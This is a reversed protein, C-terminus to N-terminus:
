QEILPEVWKQLLIPGYTEKISSFYQWGFTSLQINEPTSFQRRISAVSRGTACWQYSPDKEVVVISGTFGERRLFCATASGVAAGGVIVVDATDAV